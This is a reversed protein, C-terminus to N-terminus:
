APVPLGNDEAIWRHVRHKEAPDPGRNRSDARVYARYVAGPVAEISAGAQWCRVWLDWDEYMPYDRFGGVDRLIKTRAVAGIVIWNGENLCAATCLHNHGVVQPIYPAARSGDVYQVAPARIDATSLEIREFFRRHLEDDGDLFCVWETAVAALASNRAECLNRGHVHVFPVNQEVASKIPREQARQVWEVDGYTAVCVTVEM